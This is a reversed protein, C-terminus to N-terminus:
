IVKIFSEDCINFFADANYAKAFAVFLALVSDAAIDATASDTVPKVYGSRRLYTM